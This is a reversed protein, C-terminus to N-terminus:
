GFYSHTAYQQKMVQPVDTGSSTLILQWMSGLVLDAQCLFEKKFNNNLAIHYFQKM